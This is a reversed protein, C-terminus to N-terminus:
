HDQKPTNRQMRDDREQKARALDLIVVKGATYEILGRKTWQQLIHNVWERRAGVLSALDRQNLGLDITYRKVSIQEKGFQDCYSLLLHLLRGAADYQAIMEAYAASWRAKAVLQRILGKALKPMREVYDRFRAGPMALLECSEIAKATASHISGDVASFEGLMDFRTLINIFTENGTPTVRFVRVKGQSIIFLDGSPDGQHFIIQGKAYHRLVMEQSVIAVDRESLDAFVSAQKLIDISSSFTNSSSFAIM